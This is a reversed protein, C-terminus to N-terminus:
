LLVAKGFDREFYPVQWGGCPLCPVHVKLPFAHSRSLFKGGSPEDVPSVVEDEGAMGGRSDRGDSLNEARDYAVRSGSLGGHRVRSGNRSM